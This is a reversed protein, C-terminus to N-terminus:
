RKIIKMPMGGKPSQVFGARHPTLEYDDAAALEFHYRDLLRSLVTIMERMAFRQGACSRAGASFAVFAARPADARDRWVGDEGPHHQEVWREPQFELPERFNHPDRQICWIPFYLYTGKPVTISTRSSTSSSDPSELIVERELSRTTSIAPPYLRLTETIVAKLYCYCNDDDDDSDHNNDAAAVRRIEKICEQEVAPHQSLMYLVYTMAVSTTEYGAFLLSVLMDSLATTTTDGNDNRSDDAAAAAEAAEILGTLLDHPVEGGQPESDDKEPAAARLQLAQRRERVLEAISGRLYDREQANRRNAQTPWSYIHSAPHLLDPGIRRMFDQALYEYAQLIKPQPQEQAATQATQLQLQRCCGFDTHLAAQGFIDFTLMRLIWAMDHAQQTTREDDEEEELRQILIDTATRAATRNHRQVARGHLAQLVVARQRKWETGTLVGINRSGFFRDLHPQMVPFINRHVSQKLLTQVDATRTVSLAPTTPGMFFTCRGDADAHEISFQHIAKRFDPERMLSLHGLLFSGGPILPVGEVPSKSSFM